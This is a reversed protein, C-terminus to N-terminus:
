ATRALSGIISEASTKMNHAIDEVDLGSEYQRRIMEDLRSEEIQESIAADMMMQVTFRM